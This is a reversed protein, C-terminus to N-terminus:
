FPSGDEIAATYGADVFVTKPNLLMRNGTSLGFSKLNWNMYGPTQEGLLVSKVQKAVFGGALFACYTTAKATCPVDVAEDDSYLTDEYGVDVVHVQLEEAGMRPDIIKGGLAKNKEWILRRTAMNDVASIIIDDKIPEGEYKMAVGMIEIGSDLCIDTLADVKFRGLHSKGYLQIGINADEVKDFDWVSIRRFGMKALALVAVSGIAGAGICTIHKDLIEDPILDYSRQRYKDM